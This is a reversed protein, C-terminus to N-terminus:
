APVNWQQNAGGSCDWIQLPTGDASSVGTADLCRGSATNILQTGSRTWSQAGTGNCDYIQVKTGNATGAGAVDLCKGLARITGDTGVTWQQAGTGNCTYLQVQTGNASNAGAVDVCKGGYGTIAGTAGGGSQSGSWTFTASTAAPLTYIFSQSGWNVRLSQASGTGNYAILAKSGDPNRWAV